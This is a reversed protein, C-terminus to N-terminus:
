LCARLPWFSCLWLNWSFHHIKPCNKMMRTLIITVQFIGRNFKLTFIRNFLFAEVHIIIVNFNSFSMVKTNSIVKMLVKRCTTGVNYVSFTGFTDTVFAHLIQAADLINIARFTYSHTSSMPVFALLLLMVDLITFLCTVPRQSEGPSIRLTM